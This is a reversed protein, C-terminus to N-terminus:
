GTPMFVHILAIAVFGHAPINECPQAIDWHNLTINKWLIQTQCLLHTM